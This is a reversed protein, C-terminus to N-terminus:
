QIQSEWDKTEFWYHKRDALWGKAKVVRIWNNFYNLADYDGKRLAFGIPEKTFNEKIPVFLKKPFKLAHFAPM